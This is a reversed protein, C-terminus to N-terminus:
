QGIKSIHNVAWATFSTFLIGIGTFMMGLKVKHGKIEEKIGSIDDKVEMFDGDNSEVHDDLKKRIYRIENWIQQLMLAEEEQTMALAKNTNM